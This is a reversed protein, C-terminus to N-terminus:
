HFRTLGVWFSAEDEWDDEFSGLACNASNGSFAALPYNMHVPEVDKPMADVKAKLQRMLKLTSPCPRPQDAMAEDGDSIPSVCTSEYLSLVAQVPQPSNIRPTYVHAIKTRTNSQVLNDDMTQPILHRSLGPYAVFIAGHFGCAL